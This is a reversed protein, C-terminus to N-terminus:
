DLNSVVMRLTRHAREPPSSSRTWELVLPPYVDKKEEEEEKRERNFHLAKNWLWRAPAHQVCVLTGSTPLLEPWELRCSGVPPDGTTESLEIWGGSGVSRSEAARGQKRMASNEDKIASVAPTLICM